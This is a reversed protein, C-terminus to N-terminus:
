AARLAEQETDAALGRLTGDEEVVDWSGFPDCVLVKMGAKKSSGLASLIYPLDSTVSVGNDQDVVVIHRGRHYVKFDSHVEKIM